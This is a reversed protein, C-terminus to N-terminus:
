LMFVLHVFLEHGVEDFCKTTRHSKGLIIAVNLLKDDYEFYTMHIEYKM